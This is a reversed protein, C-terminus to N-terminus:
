FAGIVRAAFVIKEWTKGVNIINIGDSRKKWVYPAMKTEVNKTRSPSNSLNPSFDRLITNFTLIEVRVRHPGSRLPPPLHRGRHTRSCSSPPFSADLPVGM